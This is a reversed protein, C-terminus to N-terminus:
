AAQLPTGGDSARRDVEGVSNWDQLSERYLGRVVWLFYLAAPASLWDVILGHSDTLYVGRAVYLAVVAHMVACTPFVATLSLGSVSWGGLPERNHLQTRLLVWGIAFYLGVLLVNAVVLANVKLGGTVSVCAAVLATVYVAAVTPAAKLWLPTGAVFRDGRGGLFAEVRLYLWLVGVPLGIVVTVIDLFGGRGGHAGDIFAHLGHDLHHPGCTFAMCIWATGFLSLGFSRWDRRMELATMVGYGSYATGLVLNVVAVAVIM